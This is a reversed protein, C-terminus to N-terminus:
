DIRSYTKGFDINIRGCYKPKRSIIVKVNYLISYANLKNATDFNADLRNPTKLSVVVQRICM